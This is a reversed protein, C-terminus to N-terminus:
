FRAQLQATFIDNKVTTSQEALHEYTFTGKINGSGYLLLGGGLTTTADGTGIKQGM